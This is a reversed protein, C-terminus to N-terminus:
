HISGLEIVSIPYLTYTWTRGTLAERVRDGIELSSSGTVLLRSQSYQDHLRKLTLGIEPIRQAEDIFVAEYGSVLGKLRLDTPRTLVHADEPNDGNLKLWRLGSDELVKEALFTKGSQRPGLIVVVRSDSELRLLIDKTPIRPIM